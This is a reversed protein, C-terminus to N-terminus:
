QSLKINTIQHWINLKYKYAMYIYLLIISVVLLGLIIYILYSHGETDIKDSQKSIEANIVDQVEDLSHAIQHVDDLKHSDHKIKRNPFSIDGITNPIHISLKGVGIKPIFNIYYKSKMDRTPNLLINEAYARCDQNLRIFGQRKLKVIYPEKVKQCAITLTENNTTFIWTNTYNLKHFINKTLVIIGAECTQPLKDPNKFLSIECPQNKSEYQVPQFEPCITFIETETCHLLQTESFTTYKRRNKTIGVYQYEPKLIINQKNDISGNKRTTVQHPISLIKYLTLELETVLPIRILFVIQNGSYFVAMKKIETLEYIESPNTGIPLNLNIPLKLKIQTL